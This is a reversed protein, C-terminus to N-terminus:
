FNWYSISITTTFIKMHFKSGMECAKYKERKDDDHLDVCIFIDICLFFSKFIQEKKEHRNKVSTTVYRNIM